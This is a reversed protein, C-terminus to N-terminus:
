NSDNEAASSRGQQNEDEVILFFTEGERILGLENRAHEEIADMGEQLEQVENQLSANRELLEANELTQMEVEADLRDIDAYSGEGIWLRYQLGLLIVFLVAILIKM